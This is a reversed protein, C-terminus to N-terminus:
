IIEFTTRVGGDDKEIKMDKEDSSDTALMMHEQERRTTKGEGEKEQRGRRGGEMRASLCHKLRQNVDRQWVLEEREVKGAKQNDIMRGRGRRLHTKGGLMHTQTYDDDSSEGARAMIQKVGKRPKRVAGNGKVEARNIITTKYSAQQGGGWGMVVWYQGYNEVGIPAQTSDNEHSYQQM